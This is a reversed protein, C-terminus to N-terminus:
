HHRDWDGPGGQRGLGRRRSGAGRDDRGATMVLHKDVLQSLLFNISLMMRFCFLDCM